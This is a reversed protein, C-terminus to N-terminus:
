SSAQTVTPSTIPTSVWTIHIATSLGEWRSKRVATLQSRSNHVLVFGEERRNKDPGKIAAVSIFSYEKKITLSKILLCSHNTSM